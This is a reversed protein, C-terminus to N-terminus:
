ENGYRRMLALGPALKAVDENQRVKGGAHVEFRKTPRREARRERWAAPAAAVRAMWAGTAHVARIALGPKVERLLMPDAAPVAAQRKLDYLSDQVAIAHCLDLGAGVATHPQLWANEVVTLHDVCTHHELVSDRTVVAGKKVRAREGIYAPGVIRAGAEIVAHPAVWIGPRWETGRPAIHNVGYIADQSLKRLDSCDRLLNVYEHGSVPYRVGTRVSGESRSRLLAAVDRKRGASFLYADTAAEATWVRTVRNRLNTHHQLVATWQAEVYQDAWAVVIGHTGATDMAELAGEAAENLGNRSARVVRLQENERIIEQTIDTVVVIEDVGDRLLAEAVRVTLPAGLIEMTATPRHQPFGHLRASQEAILLAKLGM